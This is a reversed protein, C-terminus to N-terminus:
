RLGVNRLFSEVEYKSRRNYNQQSVTAWRVNDPEYNGNNNIRDLTLEKSPARGVDALFNQYKLWRDCVKIGRLGYHKYNPDTKNNCRKIMAAWATYEKTRDESEGHTKCFEKVYCGCSKTHSSKLKWSEVITTNGCVCKCEWFTGRTSKFVRSIVTLFGFNNGTLDILKM